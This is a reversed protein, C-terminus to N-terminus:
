GEGTSPLPSRAAVYPITQPGEPLVCLQANPGSQQLADAVADEISDIPILHAQMVQAPTLRASKLYVRARMQIQAQLQVQWQDQVNHDETFIMHLLDAPSDRMTLLKKYQGHDPIGDSCEAACIITGGPKVIKAAASM